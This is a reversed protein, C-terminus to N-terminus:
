RKERVVNSISAPATVDFDMDLVEVIEDGASGREPHDMWRQYADRDEWLGIVRVEEANDESVVMFLEMCGPVKIAKEFIEHRDFISQLEAAMGIKVRMRLDSLIM